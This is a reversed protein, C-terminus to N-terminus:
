VPVISTHYFTSYLADLKQLLYNTMVSDNSFL